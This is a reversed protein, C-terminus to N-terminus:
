AAGGKENAGFFESAKEFVQRESQIVNTDRTGDRYVKPRPVSLRVQEAQGETKGTPEVTGQKRLGTLVNKVTKLPVGTIEAIEWPYAPEDELALKVRDPATLTAEEALEAAKLEVAELTVAEESFSLKVGFPEALPGFNHKKQRLRVTLTGEGRETAEVQIVSRALNAKYVSGFAGKNQYSQGAQLRSQHDIVLVAIGLARLPELYEQHFGIVDRAHEADGHLAVGYSDVILL